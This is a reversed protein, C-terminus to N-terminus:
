KVCVGAIPQMRETIACGAGVEQECVDALVGSRAPPAAGHVRHDNHSRPGHPERERERQRALLHRGHDEVFSRPLILLPERPRDDQVLVRGRQQFPQGADREGLGPETPGSPPRHPASLHHTLDPELLSLFRIRLDAGSARAVAGLVDDFARGTEGREVDGLVYQRGGQAVGDGAFPEDLDGHLAPHVGDLLLRGTDRG